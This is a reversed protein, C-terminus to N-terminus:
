KFTKDHIVRPGNSYIGSSNRNYTPCMSQVCSAMIVILIVLLYILKKM